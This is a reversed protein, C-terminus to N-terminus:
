RLNKEKLRYFSFNVKIISFWFFFFRFTFTYKQCIKAFKEKSSVLLFMQLMKKSLRTSTLSFSMICAICLQSKSKKSLFFECAKLPALNPFLISKQKEIFLYQFSFLTRIPSSRTCVIQNVVVEQNKCVLIGNM